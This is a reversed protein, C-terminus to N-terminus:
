EGGSEPESVPEPAPESQEVPESPAESETSESQENNESSTNESSESNGSNANESAAQQEQEEAQARQEEAVENQQTIEEQVRAEADYNSAEAEESASRDALEDTKAQDVGNDVCDQFHSDSESYYGGCASVRQHYESEPAPQENEAREVNISGIGYSTVGARQAALIWTGLAVTAQTADAYHPSISRAKSYDAFAARYQSMRVRVWGRWKYAAANRPDLKIATNMDALAGSHAGLVSKAWGRDIYAQTWKPYYKLAHNCDYLAEKIKGLSERAECRYEWSWAKPNYRIAQSFDADARAYNRLQYFAQGRTQYAGSQVPKLRIAESLDAIAQVPRGTQFYSYGRNFRDNPDNPFFTLGHSFDPIANRYDNMEFRAYGLNDWSSWDRPYARVAILLDSKAAAWKGQQIFIIGRYYYAANVFKTGLMKDGHAALDLAKSYDKVAADTQNLNRESQARDYYVRADDLKL